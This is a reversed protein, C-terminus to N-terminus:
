INVPDGKKLSEFNLLKMKAYGTICQKIIM